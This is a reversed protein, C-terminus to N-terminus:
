QQALMKEIEDLATLAARWRCGESHECGDVTELDEMYLRAVCDIDPCEYYHDPAAPNDDGVPWQQPHSPGADDVL